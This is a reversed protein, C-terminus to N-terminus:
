IMTKERERVRVWEWESWESVRVRGKEREWDLHLALLSSILYDRITMLTQSRVFYKIQLNMTLNGLNKDIM